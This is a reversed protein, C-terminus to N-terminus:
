NKREKERQRDTEKRGEKRRVTQGSMITKEKMRKNKEKGWEGGGKFRGDM